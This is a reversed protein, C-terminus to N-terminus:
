LVNATSLLKQANPYKIKIFIFKQHFKKGTNM